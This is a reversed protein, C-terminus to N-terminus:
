RKLTRKRNSQRRGTKRKRDRGPQQGFQSFSPLLGTDTAQRTVSGLGRKQVLGSPPPRVPTSLASDPHPAIQLGREYLMLFDLPTLENTKKVIIHTGEVNGEGVPVIRAVYRWYKTKDDPLFDKLKILNEMSFAADTWKGNTKFAIEYQKISLTKSNRLNNEDSILGTMGYPTVSPQRQPTSAM